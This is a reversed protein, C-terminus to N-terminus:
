FRIKVALVFGDKKTKFSLDPGEDFNYLHADVYADLLSFIFVGALWWNSLNRNDRYFERERETKSEHYKKNLYISNILLGTEASFIMLAKFWKGNYWQGWGPFVTSRLVAGTPSKKVVMSDQRSPAQAVTESWLLLALPIGLWLSRM